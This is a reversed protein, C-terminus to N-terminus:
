FHTEPPKQNQAKGERWSITFDERATSKFPNKLASIPFMNLAAKGGIM